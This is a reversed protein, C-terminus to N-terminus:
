KQMDTAEMKEDLSVIYKEEIQVVNLGMKKSFYNM